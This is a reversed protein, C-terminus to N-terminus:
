QCTCFRNQQKEDKTLHALIVEGEVETQKWSNASGLLTASDVVPVQQTSGGQKVFTNKGPSIMHVKSRAGIGLSTTVVQNYGIYSGAVIGRFCKFYFLTEDTLKYLIWEM